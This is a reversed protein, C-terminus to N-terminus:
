VCVNLKAVRARLSFDSNATKVQDQLQFKQINETAVPVVGALDWSICSMHPQHKAVMLCLLAESGGVDVM